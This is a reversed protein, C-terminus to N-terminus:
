LLFLSIASMPADTAIMHMHLLLPAVLLMILFVLRESIPLGALGASGGSVAM